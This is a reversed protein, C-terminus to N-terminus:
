LKFVKSESNIQKIINETRDSHTDTIFIQGFRDENVLKILQTVRHEDLKDFIDDLLLIPTVNLAEKIVELQALKLAILYSKQQGQSGFKKIPYNSITFLLDDKHIGATSYQAARDKFLADKLLQDFPKDNLQSVYEINVRERGESIEDYYKLFLM